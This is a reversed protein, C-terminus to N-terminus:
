DQVVKRKTGKNKAPKMRRITWSIRHDVLGDKKRLKPVEHKFEQQCKAGMAILDGSKLLMDKCTEVADQTKPKPRLLFRRPGGWSLSWIPYANDMQSEDDAHLGISHEPQYWNVLGCNYQPTDPTYDSPTDVVGRQILQQLLTDAARCLEMVFQQDEVSEDCVVCSRSTGSYTYSNNGVTSPDDTVVYLQSWRNELVPKGYMFLSHREPPHQAFFHQFVQRSPPKLFGPLHLIWSSKSKTLPIIPPLSTITTTTALKSCLATSLSSSRSMNLM